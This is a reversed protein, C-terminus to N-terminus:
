KQLFSSTLPSDSCTWKHGFKCETSFFIRISAAKLFCQNYESFISVSIRLRCYLSVSIVGTIQKHVLLANNNIQVSISNWIWNPPSGSRIQDLRIAFVKRSKWNRVYWIKNIPKADKRARRLSRATQMTKLSLWWWLFQNKNYLMAVPSLCRKNSEFGALMPKWLKMVIDNWLKM